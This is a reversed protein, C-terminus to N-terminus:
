KKLYTKYTEALPDGTRDMWNALETQLASLRSAHSPDDALNNLCDPDKALNYLEEPVRRRLFNVRAAIKPDHEAAKVMADFAESKLPSANYTEGRVAWANFIYGFEADQVCRMSYDNGDPSRYYTTFVRERGEQTEGRLLPVFSTGDMGDPLPVGALDLVTPMLDIGSVFHSTDESGPRTVGPYRVFWPTRTSSLYCNAKAFPFPMGNDSLFLIITNEWAGKDRLTDLVAGVTDDLRRSSSAYQAIETRVGPIDPLFGPVPVDGPKYVKSPPAVGSGNWGYWKRDEPSGHLPRHPDHSNVVLFFPRNEAAAADLIRATQRAFASPDRGGPLLKSGEVTEDFGFAEIPEHHNVKGMMATHYGAARLTAGLTPIDRRIPFFGMADQRHPYRGTMWTQRSPQCVAVTVHARAFSMSEARLTDLRPTVSHGNKDRLGVTDWNLDDATILLINPRPQDAARAPVAADLMLAIVAKILLLRIM